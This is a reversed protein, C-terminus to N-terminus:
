EGQRVLLVPVTAQRVVQEADSGMLLRSLGRRGHTGLVILECKSNSADHVIESGAQGSRAEILESQVAVGAAKVEQEAKELLQKGSKRLAEVLEGSYVMGEYTAIVAFENVVHILRVSAGLAKALKLAEQLGRQATKSGDVPVLIKQYM